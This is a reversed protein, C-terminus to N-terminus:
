GITRPVILLSSSSRTCVCHMGQHDYPDDMGKSGLSGAKSMGQAGKAILVIM